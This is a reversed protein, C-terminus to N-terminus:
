LRSPLLGSTLHSSLSPLLSPSPATWGTSPSACRLYTGERLGAGKVGTIDERRLLDGAGGLFGRSMRDGPPDQPTAKRREEGSSIQHSSSSRFATGAGGAGSVGTKGARAPRVVSEAIYQQTCARLRVPLHPTPICPRTLASLTYTLMPTHPHKYCLCM